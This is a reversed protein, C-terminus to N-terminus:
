ALLAARIYKKYYSFVFVTHPLIHDYPCYLQDLTSKFKIEFDFARFIDRTFILNAYIQFTKDQGSASLSCGNIKSSFIWSMDSPSDARENASFIQSANIGVLILPFQQHDQFCIRYLQM